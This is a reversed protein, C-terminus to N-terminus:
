PRFEEATWFEPPNSRELRDLIKALETEQKGSESLFNDMCPYYVETLFNLFASRANKRFSIKEPAKLIERLACTSQATVAIGDLVWFCDGCAVVPRDYYMAELGVSSNVTLVVKSASVQTFTDTQNDLFIPGQTRAAMIKETFSIPCSPHEKIRLHWGKPLSKSTDFLGDLFSEVTKFERGFLRLQSDGEVQLPV